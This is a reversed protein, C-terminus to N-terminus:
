GGSVKIRDRGLNKAGYLANDVEEILGTFSHTEDHMTVVGISATLAISGDFMNQFACAIQSRLRNAVAAATTKRTEPLIILFEEGGYRGLIDIDRIGAKLLQAFQTLVLDGVSHGFTDNVRKFHDIDFMLMSLPRHFRRARHFENRGLEFLKRRNYIGTLPDMAALHQIDKFLAANDLAIAAYSALMELLNQDEASYANPSYSQTSIMGRVKGRLYMPVALISRVMQPDNFETNEDPAAPLHTDAIYISRGSNVIQATLSRASFNAQAPIVGGRDISYAAEFDQQDQDFLLIMFAEAPMLQAAARHVAAYIEEAELDASVVEQSVRHLIVRREAAQRAALFLNANEIAIAAYNAFGAALEADDQTFCWPLTRDMNLLGIVQEKGILPVGLWSRIYNSHSIPEWRPDLLTDPIIVPQRSEVVERLHKHRQVSFRMSLQDPSQFKRQAVISFAEGSQLMISASDYEVVQELNDLILELVVQPELSSILLRIVERSTEIQRLLKREAQSSRTSKVPSATSEQGSVVNWTAPNLYVLFLTADIGEISNSLIQVSTTRGDKHRVCAHCALSSATDLDEVALPVTFQPDKALLQHLNLSSFDRKAYGFLRRAAKSAARVQGNQDILLVADPVSELNVQDPQTKM